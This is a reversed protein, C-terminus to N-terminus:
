RPRSKSGNAKTRSRAAQPTSKPKAIPATVTGRLPRKSEGPLFRKRTETLSQLIIQVTQEPTRDTV